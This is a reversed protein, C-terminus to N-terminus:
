SKGVLEPYGFLAPTGGNHLYVVNEGKGVRGKRIMDILGAMSKGTYTPDLLLGEHFAALKMAELCADNLQGYGPALMGDDLFVDSDAVAGVHGIMEAVKQSKELVRVRQAVQDRRICFGFVPIDSELAKM